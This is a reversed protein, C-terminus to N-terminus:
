IKSKYKEIEKFYIHDFITGKAEKLKMTDILSKYKGNALGNAIMAAGQAAEKALKVTPLGNIKRVPAIHALKEKLPTVFADIKALRGSLLIEKPQTVSVHMAYIDKILEEIFFDMAIKFKDDTKALITFEEPSLDRYGAVYAAGSSYITRKQIIELLYALEADIGGCALFGACGQSGGIGDIVKGNEVGVVANFGSGMEAMIFSVDSYKIDLSVSQDFVGLVASCVKDATGMDIKNIKRHPPVTSLLKIGPIFYGKFGKAKLLRAIEGLGTIKSSIEKKVTLYFLDQETLEQIPTFPLGHGSPAVILDINELSQLIEVIIFPKEIVRKTPISTDLIISENNISEANKFEELGVIGWSDSGPDIGVVRVM